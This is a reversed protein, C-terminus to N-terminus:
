QKRKRSVRGDISKRLRNVESSKEKGNSGMMAKKKGSAL